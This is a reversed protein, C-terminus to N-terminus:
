GRRWRPHKQVGQRSTFARLYGDGHWQLEALGQGSGGPGFDATAFSWRCLQPHKRELRVYHDTCYISQCHLHSTPIHLVQRSAPGEVCRCMSELRARWRRSKRITMEAPVGKNPELLTVTPLCAKILTEPRDPGAIKSQRRGVRSLM